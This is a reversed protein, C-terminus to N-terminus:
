KYFSIIDSTANINAQPLIVSVVGGATTV